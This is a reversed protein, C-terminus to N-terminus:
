GQSSQDDPKRPTLNELLLYVCRHVAMATAVVLDIKKNPAKKIIRMKSDEHPQMQAAANAVHQRLEENGDHAFRRNIVLDYLQRDAKLRDSGQDFKEMWLGERSLRQSMDELQWEDFAVQVINYGQTMAGERCAPCEEGEHQWQENVIVDKFRPDLGSGDPANPHGLACGGWKLTRIFAEPGRYDIVGGKPPVWKRVARVAPDKPRLPHRTVAIVGFNDGTSAADVGLVTPEMNEPLYAPLDEKCADWLPMPIYDGEPAAWRNEHLRTYAGQTLSQSEEQYYRDAAPGRQWPMRRAEMGEDWYMVLRAPENVWIPILADPDGQAEEFAQLFHEYEEGAVPRCVARAFEGNTLQRGAKGLEYVGELMVSEGTYGAYTEVFRFSNPKTLVPTMEEYFRVAEEREMGWLETWCSLDPESGAEGAADVSIAEVKTSTTLCEMRTRQVHWQGPLLWDGARRICGPTLKISDALMSFEREKAQRWDNGVGYVEGYSTLVEAFYRMVVAGITTKGSKKITSFVGQAYRLYGDEDRQLMYRLVGVQHLMLRIPQRTSKIYFKAKAFDGVDQKTLARRAIERDLQDLAIRGPSPRM